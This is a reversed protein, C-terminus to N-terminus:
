WCCKGWFYGYGLKSPVVGQIALVSCQCLTHLAYHCPLDDSDLSLLILNISDLIFFVISVSKYPYCYYARAPRMLHRSQKV